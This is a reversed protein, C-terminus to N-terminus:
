YAFQPHRDLFRGRPNVLWDLYEELNTYGDGTRDRNGEAPDNPDLGHAEKWWDPLGDGDSDLPPELSRLEPWGGVDDQSDIIGSGAGKAGGHTATGHRAEEVIRRDIADRALSAGARELVLPYAEQATRAYSIAPYEHPAELLSEPGAGRSFGVGRRNDATVEPHGEVHNGAVYFQPTHSERGDMPEHNWIEYIIYPDPTGTNPGPKYYNNVWNAHANSGDHNARTPANFIVNNRFDVQSHGRWAIKPSRWNHHAYLNHHLSERRGRIVGGYARETKENFPHSDYLSESVLCWQITILDVDGPGSEESADAPPASTSLTENIGWSASVHDLIVNRGRHIRVATGAHGRRDGMRSRIFRVIIHDNMLTLQHDRLTIGDGPATQGAITIYPKEVELPSELTITGSVKFLITRPGEATEVGYRLSGPGTDELKTVYYVDGGRGGQAYRGFGEAGPFAPVLAAGGVEDPAAARESAAAGAAHGCALALLLATARALLAFRKTTM